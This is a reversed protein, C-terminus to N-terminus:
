FEAKVSGLISVTPPAEGGAAVHIKSFQIDNMLYKGTRTHYHWGTSGYENIGSPHALVIGNM